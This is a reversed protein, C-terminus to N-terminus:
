RAPTSCAKPALPSAGTGGSLRTPSKPPPPMSSPKADGARQELRLARPAALHDVGRHDLACRQKGRHERTKELDTLPALRAADIREVGARGPVVHVLCLVPLVDGDPRDLVPKVPFQDVAESKRRKRLVVASAPRLHPVLERFGEFRFRAVLPALDELPRIGAERRHKAPRLRAAM